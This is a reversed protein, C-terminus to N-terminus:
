KFPVYVPLVGNEQAGRYTQLRRSVVMIHMEDRRHLGAIHGPLMESYPSLLRNTVHM